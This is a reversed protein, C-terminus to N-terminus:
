KPFLLPTILTIERLYFYEKYWLLNFLKTGMFTPTYAKTIMSSLTHQLKYKNTNPLLISSQIDEKFKISQNSVHTWLNSYSAKNINNALITSHTNIENAAKILDSFSQEHKLWDRAQNMANLYQKNEDPNIPTIPKCTTTRRYKIAGKRKGNLQKFEYKPKRIHTTSLVEGLLYYGKSSQWYIYKPLNNLYVM